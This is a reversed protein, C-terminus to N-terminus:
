FRKGSGNDSLRADRGVGLPARAGDAELVPLNALRRRALRRALPAAPPAAGGADPRIPPRSGRPRFAPDSLSRRRPRDATAPAAGAGVGGHRVRRAVQGRHGRAGQRAAGPHRDRRGPVALRARSHALRAAAFALSLAVGGGARPTARAPPALVVKQRSQRMGRREPHRSRPSLSRQAAPRDRRRAKRGRRARRTRRAGGAVPRRGRGSGADSPEPPGVVVVAEGRPPGADRYHAALDALRGRRIEEHLKTLERAVAAPRNGLLEAMDALCQPSGRPAKSSCWPRTSAPGANSRAVARREARRCFAPLRSVRRAALRIPDARDAGRVPRSHGDGASRRRDGGPRAQLRPRLRAADRCGLGAGGTRRPAAGALIAPRAREANHDHYLDLPATIKYRALLRATVRTDECLIRDAGRLVALGRLTVDGLNGIPTAVLYLGPALAAKPRRPPTPNVRLRAATLSAARAREQRLNGKGRRHRARNAEGKTTRARAASAAQAGGITGAGTARGAVVRHRAWWRQVGPAGDGAGGAPGGSRGLDRQENRQRAGIGLETLRDEVCRLQCQEFRRAIPQCQNGAVGAPVGVPRGLRRARHDAVARSQDEPRQEGGLDFRDLREGAVGVEVDDGKRRHGLEGAAIGKQHAKQRALFDDALDALRALM